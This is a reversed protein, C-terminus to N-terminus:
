ETLVSRMGDRIPLYASIFHFLIKDAYDARDATFFSSSNLPLIRMALFVILAHEFLYVLQNLINVPVLIFPNALRFWQPVGKRPKPRPSDIFLMSQNISDAFVLNVDGLYSVVVLAM